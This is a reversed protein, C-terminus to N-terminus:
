RQTMLPQRVEICRATACQRAWWRYYASFPYDRPSSADRRGYASFAREFPEMAAEILLQRDFATGGALVRDVEEAAVEEIWARYSKFTAPDSAAAEFYDFEDEFGSIPPTM